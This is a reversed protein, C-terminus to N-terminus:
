LRGWMGTEGDKEQWYSCAKDGTRRDKVRPKVCHGQTLASYDGWPRKIYHLRFNKCNGCVREEKNEAIIDGM